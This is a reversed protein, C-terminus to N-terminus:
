NNNLKNIHSTILELRWGNFFTKFDSWRQLRCFDYVVYFTTDFYPLLISLKIPASNMNLARQGHKHRTYSYGPQQHKKYVSSYNFIYM